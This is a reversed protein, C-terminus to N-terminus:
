AQPEQFDPDLARALALLEDYVWGLLQLSGSAMAKGKAQRMVQIAESRDLLRDLDTLTGAISRQLEVEARDDVIREVEALLEQEGAVECGSGCCPWPRM